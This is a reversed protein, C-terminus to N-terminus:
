GKKKTEHFLLFDPELKKIFKKNTLAHNVIGEATAREADDGAWFCNLENMSYRMTINVDLNKLLDKLSNYDLYKEGLPEENKDFFFSYISCFDVYWYRNQRCLTAINETLPNNFHSIDNLFLNMLLLITHSRLFSYKKTKVAIISPLYETIEEINLVEARDLLLQGNEINISDKNEKEIDEKEVIKKEEKEEIFVFETLYNDLLSLYREKEEPKISFEIRYITDNDKCLYYTFM